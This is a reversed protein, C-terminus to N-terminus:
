PTKQRLVIILLITSLHCEERIRRNFKNLVQAVKLQSPKKFIQM